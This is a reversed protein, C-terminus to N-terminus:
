LATLDTNEITRRFSSLTTFDVIPIPLKNWVNIVRDAFFSARVSSSNFQKYLKYPHGRTATVHFKFFADADVQVIGFLIKYCWVLDHQLRRTELRKLNLLQLRDEYSHHRFGHLRKTFRRQARELSDIDRKLSPSWIVSNHELLPRVYTIYARVLLNVNHSVFCRHIM